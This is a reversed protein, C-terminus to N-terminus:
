PRRSGAYSAVDRLLTAALAQERAGAAALRAFAAALEGMVSEVGTLASAADPAGDDLARLAAVVLDGIQRSRVSADLALAAQHAFLSLLALDDDSGARRADRDLIEIVGLLREGTEIPCALIAQPMYGTSTAVNAAFRPDGSLDNVALPQGTTAVWGAIGEGSPLRLGSVGEEAGGTTTTFVLESRDESLLAISCAAAGFAARATRATLEVLDDGLPALAQSLANAAAALEREAPGPESM